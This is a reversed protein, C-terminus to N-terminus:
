SDIFEKFSGKSSEGQVGKFVLFRSSDGMFVLFASCTQTTAYIGV